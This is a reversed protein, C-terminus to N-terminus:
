RVRLRQYLALYDTAMKQATFEAEFRARAAQGYRTARTDDTAITRMAAAFATPDSPSVVLGTVDHQNIYSTGTGIECSIMPKGMMAAELLSVGFAESRLHSPFVFARCLTLLAMKDLDSIEATFHINPAGVAAQRLAAEERGKGVIVVPLGTERAATMLTPLGKYYRLAGTFLFFNEGYRTRWKALTAEDPRPYLTEDLGIPISTTKAHYRQLVSSTAIYNPSTAVIANMQGLFRNMLPQYFLKLLKQRVIDSHYTVLAPIHKPAFQHLLDGSPWPFHYHLVDAAAALRHFDRFATFSIGNSAFELTLPYYHITVGEHETSTPTQVTRSLTVVTVRHGMAHYAVALHRIFQEVGGFSATYYSKYVHLIHLPQTM